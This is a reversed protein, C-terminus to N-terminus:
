HDRQGKLFEEIETRLKEYERLKTDVEKLWESRDRLFLSTFELGLKVQLAETKSVDDATAVGEAIKRSKESLEALEAQFSDSYRQAARLFRPVFENPRKSFELRPIIEEIDSFKRRLEEDDPYATIIFIPFTPLIRRLYSVVDHGDYGVAGQEQLKEDLLLVNIEHERFWRTYDELSPLPASDVSQWKGTLALDLARKLTERHDLRDDIIGVKPM